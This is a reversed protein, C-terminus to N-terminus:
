AGDGFELRHLEGVVDMFMRALREDPVYATDAIRFLKDDLSNAVATSIRGGDRLRKSARDLPRVMYIPESALYKMVLDATVVWPGPGLVDIVGQVGPDCAGDQRLMDPTLYYLGDAPHKM